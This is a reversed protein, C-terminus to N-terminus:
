ARDRRRTPGPELRRLGGDRPHLTPPAHSEEHECALRTGIATSLIAMAAQNADPWRRYINALIARVKRDATIYMRPTDNLRLFPCTKLFATLETLIQLVAPDNRRVRVRM